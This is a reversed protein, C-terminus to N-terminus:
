FEEKYIDKLVTQIIFLSDQFSPKHQRLILRYHKIGKDTIRYRRISRKLPEEWWGEIYGESELQRLLPYIMGPSPTWKNGLRDSIEGRIKNGYYVEDQLLHLIYLKVFSTTGITTPFQRQRQGKYSTM